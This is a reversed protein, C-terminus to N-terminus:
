LARIAHLFPLIVRHVFPPHFLASLPAAAVLFLLLRGRWGGRLGLRRGTHSRELLQGAGQLAFYLTPLGYGGGAPVSIVADHILGSFLFILLTAFALGFRTRLPPLLSTAVLDHFATNWRRGWFDSLSSALLPQQMLLPAPRGLRQWTLALLGFLGFHLMLILGVMGIWGALLPGTALRAVGFLLTAGTLVKGLPALWKQRPIPAASVTRPRLFRSANMGPWLFLYAATAAPSPRVGQAFARRATWLKCLFYIAAALSWMVVWPPLGHIPLIALPVASM